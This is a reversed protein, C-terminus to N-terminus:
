YQQKNAITKLTKGKSKRIVVGQTSVTNSGTRRGDIGYTADASSGDNSIGDIHSTSDTTTVRIADSPLSMEGNRVAVVQLSYETNSELADFTTNLSEGTNKGNYRDLATVTQATGSASIDDVTVYAAGSRNFYIRVMDAPEMDVSVTGKASASADITRESVWSGNRQAHVEINSGDAPTTVCYWFKLNSIKADKNTINIFNGRATMKLAPAEEGYTGASSSFNNCNTTWGEPMGDKRDTFGYTTTQQGGDYAIKSLTVAYSQAGETADWSAAFSSGTIDSAKVNAVKLAAFPMAATEVSKTDPESYFSANCSYLSVQYLSKEELGDVAASLGSVSKESYGDVDTLSNDDNVKKIDLIYKDANEVKGWALDFGDHRENSVTMEPRTVGSGSGKVAFSVIGDSEAIRDIDLLEKGAWSKMSLVTVNDSGPYPVGTQYYDSGSKKGNAEVIDVRQHSSVNNVTNEQWATEDYDIHWALMGEGPLYKDWGKKQRNELLYYEDKDGPVQVMYAKNEDALCPLQLTGATRHTILEPELWGLEYCEYSSYLPPTNCDNAYSGTDMTDWYGPTATSNQNETDYHDDFGLCHGFEHVFTGIGATYGTRQGDEENSCTYSDIAVGDNTTLDIGWETMYFAHPWITRSDYSDASGKGAYYIYINDVFGDGDHDYKSFDVEGDLAEVAAKVLTGMNIPTDYTGQGADHQKYSVKVPGYVDFTPKFLGKSSAIFFDRASGNAGNDATFGEKNMADNYFQKPDDMTSFEKDAFEMLIVISHQEGFHPFNNMLAREPKGAARKVATKKQPILSRKRAEGMAMDAAAQRDVSSLLAVAQPTRRAADAAAMGSAVLRSGSITAYEYNGTAENFIVPFGDATTAYNGHESGHLRISIETGDAQRAKILGPYAKVAFGGQASCLMLAALAIHKYTKM